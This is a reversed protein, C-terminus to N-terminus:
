SELQCGIDAALAQLAEIFNSMELVTMESTGKATHVVNEGIKREVFPAFQAKCIDKMQKETYGTFLALDRIMAHIKANQALTRDREFPKVTVQWAKGETFLGSGSMQQAIGVFGNYDRIIWPTM